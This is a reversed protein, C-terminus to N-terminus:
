KSPSLQGPPRPREAKRDQDENLITVARESLRDLKLMASKFEDAVHQCNETMAVGVWVSNLIGYAGPPHESLIPRGGFFDAVRRAFVYGRSIVARSLL